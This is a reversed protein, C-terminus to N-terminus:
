SFVFAVVFNKTLIESLKYESKEDQRTRPAETVKTVMPQQVSNTQGVFGSRVYPIQIISNGRMDHKKKRM